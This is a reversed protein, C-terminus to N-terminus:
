LLLYTKLSSKLARNFIARAVKSRRYNRSPIINKWPVLVLQYINSAETERDSVVTADIELSNEYIGGGGGGAGKILGVTIM